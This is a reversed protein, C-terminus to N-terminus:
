RRDSSAGVDGSRGEVRFMLAEPLRASGERDGLRGHRYWGRGARRHRSQEPIRVGAVVIGRGFAGASRRSGTILLTRFANPARLWLVIAPWVAIPVFVVLANVLPSALRLDHAIVRPVGLLALGFVASLPTGLSERFGDLMLAGRGPALPPFRHIGGDRDRREDGAPVLARDRVRGRGATPTRRFARASGETFMIENRPWFYLASFM